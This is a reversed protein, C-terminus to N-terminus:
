CSKCEQPLTVRSFHRNRLPIERCSASTICYSESGRCVLRPGVAQEAPAGWGAGCVCLVVSVGVCTGSWLPLTLEKIEEM